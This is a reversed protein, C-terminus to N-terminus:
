PPPPLTVKEPTSVGVMAGGGALGGGVPSAVVGTEATASAKDIAASANSSSTSAEVSASEATAAQASGESAVAVAARPAVSTVTAAAAAASAPATAAPAAAAHLAAGSSGTAGGGSKAGGGGSGAGGGAALSASPAKAGGAASAAAAPKKAAAAAASPVLDPFLRCFDKNALNFALSKAALARKEEDGSEISGTTRESGVMFSQVGLLISSLGWLPNWTEPHFSSMSMCLAKNTEFRGSPTTMTITPPKMPYESPLELRGHYVGGAYPTDPSGLICYHVDLLNKESANAFILPTPSKAMKTLELKIRTTATKSM